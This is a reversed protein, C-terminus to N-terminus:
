RIGSLCLLEPPPSQVTISQEQTPHHLCVEYSHLLYGCDSPISHQNTAVGGVGYLPDGLLPYGASALHIRIQHPRGTPITVELLTANPIRNRELVVCHSIAEKGTETAAYLYSLQPYSVKGIRTDITFRDSDPIGAVLARYRKQIRRDRLAKSLKSRAKETKALVIVGSTGRGLRHIPVPPTKYTRRLWGWVTNELFGGGPLVPLGSPKHLILLQDDEYLTAIDFSVEPEIWPSRHYNLRQGRQLLTDPNTNPIQNISIAGSQIRDLWQARTSHPYRQAYYELLTIGAQSVQDHYIWGQNMM